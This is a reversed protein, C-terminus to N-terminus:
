ELEQKQNEPVKAIWEEIDITQHEEIIARHARNMRLVHEAIEANRESGVPKRHKQFARLWDEGLAVYNATMRNKTLDDYNFHYGRHYAFHHLTGFPWIWKKHGTVALAANLFQEGGSYIGLTKPWGGLVDMLIRKSIMMGCTSMCPVEHISERNKIRSFKYTFEGKEANHRMLYVHAVGLHDNMYAIPLHLTGRQCLGTEVYYKRMEAVAGPTLLVHADLFLLTEATAVRVGAMKAQWHSLTDNYVLRRVNDVKGLGEAGRQWSAIFQLVAQAQAPSFTKWLDGVGQPIVHEAASEPTTLNELRYDRNAIYIIEYDLGSGELDMRLSQITFYIQPFENCGPIIISLQCM